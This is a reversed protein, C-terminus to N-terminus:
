NSSPKLPQWNPSPNIKLCVVQSTPEQLRKGVDTPDSMLGHFGFILTSAICCMTFAMQPANISMQLPIFYKQINQKYSRVKTPKYVTLYRLICTVFVSLIDDEPINRWTARTLTLTGRFRWIKVLAVRHLM